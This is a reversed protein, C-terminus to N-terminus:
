AMEAATIDNELTISEGSPRRKRSSRTDSADAVQAVRQIRRSVTTVTNPKAMASTPAASPMDVGAYSPRSFIQPSISWRM